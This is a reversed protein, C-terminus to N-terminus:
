RSARREGIAERALVDRPAGNGPATLPVSCFFRRRYAAPSLGTWRQFARHFGSPDAYGLMFSVEDVSHGCDALYGLALERRTDDFLRAVSTGEESLRRQLTRPSVALARALTRSEPKGQRHLPRLLLERARATWVGSASLRAGMARAQRELFVCFIPDAGPISAHGIDAAYHLVTGKAGYFTPAGFLREIWAGHVPRAHPFEIRKLRVPAGIVTCVLAHNMAATGENFLRIRSLPPLCDMHISFATDTAHIRFRSLETLLPAHREYATFGEAVTSSNRIIHSVIGFASVDRRQLAYALGDRSKSDHECLRLLAIYNHIPVRQEIDTLSNLRIGTADMLVAADMGVANVTELVARVISSMMTKRRSLIPHHSADRPSERNSM